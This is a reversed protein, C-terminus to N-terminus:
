HSSQNNALFSCGSSDYWFCDEIQKDAVPPTLEMVHHALQPVGTHGAVIVSGTEDTSKKVPMTVCPVSLVTTRHPEEFNQSTTDLTTDRRWKPQGKPGELTTTTRATILADTKYGEVPTVIRDRWSKRIEPLLLTPQGM